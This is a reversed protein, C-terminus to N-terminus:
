QSIGRAKLLELIAESVKRATEQDINGTFLIPNPKKVVEKKPVVYGSEVLRKFENHNNFVKKAICELVGNEKSFTDGEMVKVVEKSGDQFYCITYPDNYIVRVPKYRNHSAGWNSAETDLVIKCNSLDYTGSLIGVNSISGGKTMKNEGKRIKLYNEFVENM